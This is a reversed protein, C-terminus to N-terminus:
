CLFAVCHQRIEGAVLTNIISLTSSLGYDNYHGIHGCRLGWVGLWPTMFHVFKTSGEKTMMVMKMIHSIHGCGLVLVGAGPTMSVVIQFVRGQDGNSCDRFREVKGSSHHAFPSRVTPPHQVFASRVCLSRHRFASRLNTFSIHVSFSSRVHFAFPAGVSFARHVCSSRVIFTKNSFDRTNEKCQM